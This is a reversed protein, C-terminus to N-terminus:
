EVDGHAGAALPATLLGLVRTVSPVTDSLM